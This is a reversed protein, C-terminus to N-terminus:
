NLFESTVEIDEIKIFLDIGFSSNASIIYAYKTGMIKAIKDHKGDLSKNNGGLYLFGNRFDSLNFDGREDNVCGVILPVYKKSQIRFVEKGEYKVLEDYSKIKVYSM